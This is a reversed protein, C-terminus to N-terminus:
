FVVDTIAKDDVFHLISDYSAYCLVMVNKELATRTKICVSLSGRLPKHNYLGNDKTKSLDFPIIFKDKLFDKRPVAVSELELNGTGTNELFYRYINAEDIDKHYTLPKSPVRVGNIVLSIESVDFPEFKFQAMNINGNYAAQDVLMLYLRNPLKGSYLNYHSLDYSGQTAAYTKLNNKTYQTHPPMKKAQQIHHNLVEDFVRYKVVKLSLDEIVIKLDEEKLANTDKIQVLFNLPTRRLVIGLKTNPPLYKHATVIDNHLPITFDTPKNDRLVWDWDSKMGYERVITDGVDKRAGLVMQLYTSYPYSISNLDGIETDNVKAIINSWLSQFFNDALSIMGKESAPFIVWQGDVKKMLTVNGSVKLSDTETFLDEDAHVNFEVPGGNSGMSQPRFELEYRESVSHDVTVPSFLDLKSTTTEDIHVSHGGIGLGSDM